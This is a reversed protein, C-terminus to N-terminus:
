NGLYVADITKTKALVKNVWVGPWWRLHPQFKKCTCHFIGFRLKWFKNSFHVDAIGYHVDSIGPVMVVAFILSKHFGSVM